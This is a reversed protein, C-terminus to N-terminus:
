TVDLIMRAITLRQWRDVRVDDAQKLFVANVAALAANLRDIDIMRDGSLTDLNQCNQPCFDVMAQGNIRSLVPLGHTRCIIPRAHYILCAHNELLPCPGDPEANLARLRLTEQQPAPLAAVAGAMAEAEVPFLSLHRCCLDCGKHCVLHGKLRATIAACLQDVRTLLDHYNQLNKTEPM